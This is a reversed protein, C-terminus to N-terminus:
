INLDKKIKELNIVDIRDRDRDVRKKNEILYNIHLFKARIGHIEAVPSSKYCEDFTYNELGALETLIDLEVGSELSIGSRGPIFQITEMLPIDGLGLEFLAKRLKRRNEIEDELWLDIDGTMRSYGHLNTALGGVFIFRVNNAELVRLLEIFHEEFVDM